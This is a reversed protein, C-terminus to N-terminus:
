LKYKICNTNATTYVFMASGLNNANDPVQSPQFTQSFPMISSAVSQINCVQAPNANYCNLPSFLLMETILPVM